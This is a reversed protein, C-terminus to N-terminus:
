VILLYKLVAGHFKLIFCGQAPSQQLHAQIRNNLRPFHNSNGSIAPIYRVSDLRRPLEQFRLFSQLFKVNAEFVHNSPTRLLELFRIRYQFFFDDLAGADFLLQNQGLGLRVPGIPGFARKQGIHRMLDPRRHIGDQPKGFQEQPVIRERRLLPLIQVIDITGPFM